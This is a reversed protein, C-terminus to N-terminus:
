HASVKMISLADIVNRGDAAKRAVQLADLLARNDEVLGTLVVNGNDIVVEIHTDNVYSAARLAAKVRAALEADSAAPAQAPSVPRQSPQTVTCASIGGLLLLTMATGAGAPAGRVLYKLAM